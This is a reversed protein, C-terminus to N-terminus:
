HVERMEIIMDVKSEIRELCARLEEREEDLESALDRIACPKCFNDVLELGCTPCDEEDM